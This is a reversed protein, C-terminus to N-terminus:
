GTHQDEFYFQMRHRPVEPAHEPSIGTEDNKEQEPQAEDGVFASSAIQEQPAEAVLEPEPEPAPDEQDLGEDSAQLAEEEKELAQRAMEKVHEMMGKGVQYTTQMNEIVMAADTFDEGYDVLGDVNALVPNLRWLKRLARTKLRAPVVDSMFASFDDGEQMDDPDPLGLEELVEEDTKEANSAELTAEHAAKLEADAEAEVAAKRKSWFDSM